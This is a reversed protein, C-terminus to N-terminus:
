TKNNKNLWETMDSVETVRHVIAWFGGRDMPNGLCSYQLPNGNVVGPSRGSGSISGVEGADGANDPLNKVVSGGPFSSVQTAPFYHHLSCPPSSSFPLLKPLSDNNIKYYQYTVCMPQFRNSWRSVRPNEQSAIVNEIFEIWKTKEKGPRIHRNKEGLARKMLLVISLHKVCLSLDFKRSWAPRHGCKTYPDNVSWIGAKLGLEQNFGWPDMVADAKSVVRTRNRM